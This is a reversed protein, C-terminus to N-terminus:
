ASQFNGSRVTIDKNEYDSGGVLTIGLNCDESELSLVVTNSKVAKEIHVEKAVPLEKEKIKVEEVKKTVENIKKIEAIVKNETKEGRLKSLKNVSPTVTAAPSAIQSPKVAPVTSSVNAINEFNKKLANVSLPKTDKNYRLYESRTIERAYQRGNTESNRLKTPITSTTKPKSNHM